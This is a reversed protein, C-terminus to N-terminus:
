IPGNIDVDVEVSFSPTEAGDIEAQTISEHAVILFGSAAELALRRHRTQSINVFDVRDGVRLVLLDGRWHVGEGLSAVARNKLFGKNYRFFVDFDDVHEGSFVHVRTRQIPVTNDHGKLLAQVVPIRDNNFSLAPVTVISRKTALPFHLGILSEQEYQYNSM